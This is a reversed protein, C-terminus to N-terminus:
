NLVPFGQLVRLYLAIMSHRFTNVKAFFGFEVQMPLDETINNPNKKAFFDFRIDGRYFESEKKTRRGLNGTIFAWRDVGAEPFFVEM